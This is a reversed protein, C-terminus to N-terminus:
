RNFDLSAVYSPAASDVKVYWKMTIQISSHALWESAARLGHEDFVISGVSKRITHASAWLYGQKSLAASVLASKTRPIREGPFLQDGNIKAAYERLKELISQPLTKVPYQKGTKISLMKIQGTEWDIDSKQLNFIDSVRGGTYTMILLAMNSMTPRANLLQTQLDALQARTLTRDLDRKKGAQPSPLNKPITLKAQALEAVQSSSYQAAAKLAAKFKYAANTGHLRAHNAVIPELNARQFAEICPMDWWEPNDEVSHKVVAEQDTRTAPKLRDMFSPSARYTDWLNRVTQWELDGAPGAQALVTEIDAAERCATEAAKRTAAIRRIEKAAKGHQGVRIRASWMDGQPNNLWGTPTKSVRTVTLAGQEGPQLPKRGM